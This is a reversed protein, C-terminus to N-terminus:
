RLHQAVDVEVHWAAFGLVQSGNGFGREMFEVFAALVTHPAHTSAAHDLYVLPREGSGLVPVHRGVIAFERRVDGWDLKAGPIRCAAVNGAVTLGLHRWREIGGALSKVNAYGLQQLADCVLASREGSASYVVVPTDKNPVHEAINREVVGRPLGIADPLMCSRTEDAERVDLVVASPVGLQGGLEECTVETIRSRAERILDKFTRQM